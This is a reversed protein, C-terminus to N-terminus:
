SASSAAPPVPPAPDKPLKRLRDAAPPHTSFVPRTKNKELERLTEIVARLGGPAYGTVQALARGEKDADYESQSDYGKDLLNETIASVAEDYQLYNRNNDAVLATIGSLFEGRAIIKLAHRRDIHAIEHALVGALEDDSRIIEFLGRTIFVRGGPASFANISESDLIGFRWTLDQRFAYRSLSRGVLNLHRTATEDRWVGGFRGVIELSVADGIAIEEELSLGTAGKAVKEADGATRTVDEVVKGLDGLKGLGPFGADLDIPVAVFM